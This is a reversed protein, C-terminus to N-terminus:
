KTEKPSKGIYHHCRLCALESWHGNRDSDYPRHGVVACVLPLLTDGLVLRASPYAYAGCRRASQAQQRFNSRGQPTLLDFGM